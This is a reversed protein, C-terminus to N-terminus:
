KYVTFFELDKLPTLSKYKFFFPTMLAVNVIICATAHHKVGVVYDLASEHTPFWKYTTSSGVRIAIFRSNRETAMDVVVVIDDAYRTSQKPRAIEFMKMM